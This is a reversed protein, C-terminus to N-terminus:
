DRSMVVNFNKCIYDIYNKKVVNIKMKERANKLRWYSRILGYSGNQEARIWVSFMLLQYVKM